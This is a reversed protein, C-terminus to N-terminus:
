ANTHRKNHSDLSSRCNASTVLDDIYLFRGWALNEGIRFGAVAVVKDQQTAYALRYGSTQQLQIRSLFDEKNIHPRLQQMVACCGDIQADSNALQIKSKM